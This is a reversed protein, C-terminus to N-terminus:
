AVSPLTGRLTWPEYIDPKGAMIRRRETENCGRYYNDAASFVSVLTPAGEGPEFCRKWSTSVSIPNRPDRSVCRPARWPPLTRASIIRWKSVRPNGKDRSGFEVGVPNGGGARYCEPSISVQFM